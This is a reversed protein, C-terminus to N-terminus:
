LGASLTFYVSRGIGPIIGPGPYESTRMTFYRINTLNNVGTELTMRSTMRYRASWDLVQYAPIVGVTADYSAVTNNADSFQKSVSSAQLTTAFPGLAYTLGFRNVVAPAYEVTHDAFEGTVYRAHTYGLADYLTLTGWSPAIGLLSFPRLELYGEAGKHVSNAV